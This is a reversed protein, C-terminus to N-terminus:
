EPRYTIARLEQRQQEITNLAAQFKNRLEGEARDLANLQKQVVEDGALPRFEVEAFETLRVYDEFTDFRENCVSEYGRDLQKFIALKQKTNM